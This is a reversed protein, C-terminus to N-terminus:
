RSWDCWALGKQIRIPTKCQSPINAPPINPLADGKEWYGLRHEIEPMEADIVALANGDGETTNGNYDLVKIYRESSVLRYVIIKYRYPWPSTLRNLIVDGALPGDSIFRVEGNNSGNEVASFIKKFRNFHRNYAWIIPGSWFASGGGTWGVKAVILDAKTRGISRFSDLGEFANYETGSQNPCTPGDGLVTNPLWCIDPCTSKGNQIFCFHL